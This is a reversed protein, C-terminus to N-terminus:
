PKAESHVALAQSDAAEILPFREGYLTVEVNGISVTAEYSAHTQWHRTVHVDHYPECPEAGASLLAARLGIVDGVRNLTVDSGQPLVSSLARLLDALLAPRSVDDVLSAADAFRRARIMDWAVDVAAADAPPPEIRKPAAKLQEHAHLARAERIRAEEVRRRHSRPGHCRNGEGVGCQPCPVAIIERHELYISM